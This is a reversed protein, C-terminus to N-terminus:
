GLFVKKYKKFIWLAPLLFMGFHLFMFLIVFDLAYGQLFYKTQLIVAVALSMWLALYRPNQTLRRFIKFAVFGWFSGFIIKNPFYEWPVWFKPTIQHTFFDIITGLAIILIILGLQKVWLNKATM